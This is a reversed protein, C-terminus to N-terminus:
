VCRSTYLLCIRYQTDLMLPNKYTGNSLVREFLSTELQPINSFSSLQKEDGVFVFNRIGPLSLPVLTSAESSQTAEDMIVVPCEKIVKLERGGAAINTTFIIQSQSVVKNTIRNKEKYFKTDESKSIMEGRRTRNAVVQM